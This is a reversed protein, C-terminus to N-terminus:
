VAPVRRLLDANEERFDLEYEARVNEEIETIHRKECSIDAAVMAVEERQLDALAEKDYDPKRNDPSGVIEELKQELIRDVEDQDSVEYGAKRMCESWNEVADVMRSDELIREDLDDLKAMLNEAFEAGGFVEDAAERLCGGLRSFSGTDLAVALTATPDEGYLARDYAARDAESLSNRIQENPGTVAQQSRQEYLTTIGYGYQKEFEEETLGTTGVLEARQAAPDVPVYEFGQAKMCDRILNEAAVQRDFSEEGSFGVQEEVLPLDTEQQARRCAGLVGVFVVALAILVWARKVLM